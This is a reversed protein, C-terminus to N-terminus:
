AIKYKEKTSRTITTTITLGSYNPQYRKYNTNENKLIQIKYRGRIVLITLKKEKKKGYM